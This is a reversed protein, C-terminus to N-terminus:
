TILHRMSQRLINKGQSQPTLFNNGSHSEYIPPPPTNAAIGRYKKLRQALCSKVDNSETKLSPSPKDRRKRKKAMITLHFCIICHHNHHHDPPRPCTKYYHISNFAPRYIIVCWVAILSPRHTISPIPSAHTITQSPLYSLSLYYPVTSMCMYIPRRIVKKQPANRVLVGCNLM